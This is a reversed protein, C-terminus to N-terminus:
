QIRMFNKLTIQFAFVGEFISNKLAELGSKQPRNKLIFLKKAKGHM